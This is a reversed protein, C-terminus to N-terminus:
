SFGLNNRQTRQECVYTTIGVYCRSFSCARWSRRQMEGTVTIWSASIHNNVTDLSRQYFMVTSFTTKAVMTIYLVLTESVKNWCINFGKFNYHKTVCWVMTEWCKKAIYGSSLISKGGLAVEFWFCFLFFHSLHFLVGMVAYLM